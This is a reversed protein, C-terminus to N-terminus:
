MKGWADLIRFSGNPIQNPKEIIIWEAAPNPYIRIEPQINPESVSITNVFQDNSPWSTITPLVNWVLNDVAANINGNQDRTNLLLAWNLRGNGNRVFETTTGPLSGMHWWNNYANVSIGHAYNAYNVSAKTMSDLAATSIVDPRTSFRDFACVLKVLDGASGIWGGGADMAKLDFGGYPWPVPTNNTYISSAFPANPYDYYRVENPFKDALLNNGIHMDWIGLPILIENRVYQEYSMGTIKEIVRGLVCFGFNSYQYQSGPNFDLLKTGIVHRIVDSATPPSPVGLAMATNYANFMPDGSIARNWGGSHQLLMRVTIQHLRPDLINTYQPDNLIGTPGFVNDALSLQGQEILKFCALATIPKSVSAFRFLSTPQVPIQNAQDAFGFGRNYILRGWHTIALQAGPVQYTTMLNQMAADFNALQPVYTGTQGWASFSFFLVLTQFTTKKM